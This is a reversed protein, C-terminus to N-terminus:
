IVMEEVCERRACAVPMRERAVGGTSTHCFRVGELHERDTIEFVLSHKNDGHDFSVKYEETIYPVGCM